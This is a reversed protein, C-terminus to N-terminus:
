MPCFLLRVVLIWFFTSFLLYFLCPNANLKMQTVSIAAQVDPKMVCRFLFIDPKWSLAIKVAINKM